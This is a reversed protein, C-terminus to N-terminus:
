FKYEKLTKQKGDPHRTKYIFVKGKRGKLQQKLNEYCADCAEIVKSDNGGMIPDMGVSFRIATDFAGAADSYDFDGSVARYSYYAGADDMGPVDFEDCATLVAMTMACCLAM